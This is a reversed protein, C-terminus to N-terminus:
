HKYTCIKHDYVPDPSREQNRWRCIESIIYDSADLKGDRRFVFMHRAKELAAQKARIESLPRKQLWDLVKKMNTMAYYHPVFYSISCYDFWRIYPYDRIYFSKKIKARTKANQLIYVPICGGAGGIAITESIKGTNGPDGQAVLCFRHQSAMKLYNYTNKDKGRITDRTMFPIEQHFNVDRYNKCM